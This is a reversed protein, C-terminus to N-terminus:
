KKPEDGYIARRMKRKIDHLRVEGTGGEVREDSYSPTVREDPHLLISLETVEAPVKVVLVERGGRTVKETEGTWWAKSGSAQPVHGTLRFCGYYAGPGKEKRRDVWDFEMEVHPLARVVLEKTEEDERLTVQQSVFVASVDRSDKMGKEDRVHADPSLTFKGANMPTFEFLGDVRSVTKRGAYPGRESSTFLHVGPLGWGAADVVRGRLVIGKSLRLEGLEAVGNSEDIQRSKEGNVEIEFPAFKALPHEKNTKEISTTDIPTFDGGHTGLRIWGRASEPPVTVSFTGDEDTTTAAHWNPWESVSFSVRMINEIYEASVWPESGCHVGASLSVGRAPEGNPLLLRGRVEVGPYLAVTIPKKPDAKPADKGVWEVPLDGVITFGAGACWGPGRVNLGTCEGERLPVKIKGDADSILLCDEQVSRNSFSVNANVLIDALPRKAGSEVFRVTWIRIPRASEAREQAKSDEATAAGVGVVVGAIMLLLIWLRCIQM